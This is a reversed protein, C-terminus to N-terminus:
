ETLRLSDGVIWAAVLLTVNQVVEPNVTGAGLLTDACVVLVGSIGIWFRRSKILANLKDPMVNRRNYIFLTVNKEEM